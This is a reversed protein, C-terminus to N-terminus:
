PLIIHFHSLAFKIVEYAPKLGAVTQISVAISMLYTKLRTGNPNPKEIEARSDDILEIVEEKLFGSLNGGSELYKRIDDLAQFLAEQDNSSIIQTVNSTAGQGTQVAGVNGTGNIINKTSEDRVEKEKTRGLSLVFLEIGNNIRELAKNQTNTLKDILNDIEQTSMIYNALKSIDKTLDNATSLLYTEVDQKLHSALEESPHVDIASLVKKLEEWVISARTEIESAYRNFFERNAITSDLTGQLTMQDTVRTIEQRFQKHRQNLQIQIREDALKAVKPNLM